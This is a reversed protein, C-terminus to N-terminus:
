VASTLNPSSSLLISIDRLLIITGVPPPGPQGFDITRTTTSSQLFVLRGGKQSTSPLHHTLPRTFRCNSVLPTCLSEFLLLCLLPKTLRSGFIPYESTDINILSLLVLHESPIINISSGLIQQDSITRGIPSGLILRELINSSNAIISVTSHKAHHLDDTAPELFDELRSRPRITLGPACM